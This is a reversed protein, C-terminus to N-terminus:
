PVEMIKVTVSSPLLHPHGTSLTLLNFLMDERLPLKDLVFGAQKSLWPKITEGILTVLASRHLALFPILESHFPTPRSGYVMEPVGHLLLRM